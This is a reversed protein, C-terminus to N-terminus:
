TPGCSSPRMSRASITARRATCGTSSASRPTTCPWCRPPSTCWASERTCCPPWCGGPAAPWTAASRLWSRGAPSGPGSRPQRRSGDGRGPDERARGRHHGARHVARHRDAPLAHPGGHPGAGEQGHGPHVPRRGPRGAVPAAEAADDRIRLCYTYCAPGAQILRDFEATLTAAPMSSAEKRPRGPHARATRAHPVVGSPDTASRNISAKGLLDLPVPDGAETGPGRRGPLRRPQIRRM